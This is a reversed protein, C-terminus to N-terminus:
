QVIIKQTFMEKGSLRAWYVGRELNLSVSVVSQTNAYVEKLFVSQGNSALIELKWDTKSDPMIVQLQDGQKLPNLYAVLSTERQGSINMKESWVDQPAYSIDEDNTSGLCFICGVFDSRVVTTAPNNNPNGDFDECTAELRYYFLQGAQLGFPVTVNVTQGTGVFTYNFGNTSTSWRYTVNNTQCGQTSGSLTINAGPTITAGFPLRNISTYFGCQSEVNTIATANADLTRLNNAAGSM